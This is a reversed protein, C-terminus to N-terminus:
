GLGVSDTSIPPTTNKDQRVRRLLVWARSLRALWLLAKIEHDAYGRQVLAKCGPSTLRTSYWACRLSAL